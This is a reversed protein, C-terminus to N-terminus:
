HAPWKRRFQEAAHQMIPKGHGFCAINFDLKGLEELTRIGVSLDEYGINLGLGSVNAAADAAFLVGGHEPLLFAMQGLSHGPTHITRLGAAFHLVEDQKLIGDVPTPDLLGEKGDIIIRFLVKNLLGPSAKMPRQKVRQSVIPVDAESAYLKADPLARKLAAASGAHDPHAHTLLITKLDNRRFGGQEIAQVIREANGPSGTDILVLEQGTSLVYANVSGLPLRYVNDAIPLLRM